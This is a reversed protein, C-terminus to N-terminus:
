CNYESNYSESLRCKSAAIKMGEQNRVLDKVLPLMSMTTFINQLEQQDCASVTLYICESALCYQLM